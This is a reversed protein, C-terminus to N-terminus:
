ARDSREEEQRVFAPADVLSNRGGRHRHRRRGLPLPIKGGAGGEGAGERIVIKGLHEARPGAACRRHLSVGSRANRRSCRISGNEGAVDNGRPAKVGGGRIQHVLEHGQGIGAVVKVLGRRELAVARVLPRHANVVLEGVVLLEIGVVVEVIIEQRVGERVKFRAAGGKRTEAVQGVIAVLLDIQRM